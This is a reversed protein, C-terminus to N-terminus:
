EDTVQVVPEKAEAFPNYISVTEKIQPPSAADVCTTRLHRYTPITGKYFVGLLLFHVVESFGILLFAHQRPLYVGDL